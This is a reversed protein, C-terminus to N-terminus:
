DFERKPTTQEKGVRGAAIDARFYNEGRIPASALRRLMALQGIHTLADAIPGQFLREPECQLPQQLQQDVRQLGEFFRDVERDWSQPKAENWTKEGRALVVTWDLLDSIHSLIQLPTRPKDGVSFAAFEPPADRVVKGGRYAITAVAHRLLENL